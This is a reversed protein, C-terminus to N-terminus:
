HSEIEGRPTEHAVPKAAPDRQLWHRGMGLGAVVAAILGPILLTYLLIALPGPDPAVPFGPLTGKLVPLLLPLM